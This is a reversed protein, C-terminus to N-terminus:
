IMRDWADIPIEDIEGVDAGQPAGANNVLVDVRGYLRLAEGVMRDCDEPVSVDGMVHAAEGGREEIEEVVSPLGRWAEGSRTEEFQNPVGAAAVDTVVVTFSASLAGAIARGIGDEKACGTVLAVRRENTQAATM